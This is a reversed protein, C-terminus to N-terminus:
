SKVEMEGGLAQILDALLKGLEGTMLTFDSDFREAENEAQNEATEKLIDLFALRKLQLTDTLVFSIKDAWTLGLRTVIKGAAIHAPIDEGDLAHKAYRVTAHEASQLETDRDITFGAPADGDALWGTMASAPSQQLKVPAIVLGDISRHLQELLKDARPPSASDIALWGAAPDIWAYTARRRIFARPLLEQLAQEQLERFERRGVRRGENTEITQAREHAHQRIVSAPLLKEEAGLTILWQHNVAHVFAGEPGAPLWGLSLTQAGSCPQLPRSALRTELGNCETALRVRFIQLNKFWM